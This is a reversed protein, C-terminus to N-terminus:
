TCPETLRIYQAAVTQIHHAGKISKKTEKMRQQEVAGKRFMGESIKCLRCFDKLYGLDEHEDQKTRGM